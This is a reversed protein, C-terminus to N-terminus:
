GHAIRIGDGPIILRRELFEHLRNWAIRRDEFYDDIPPHVERAM